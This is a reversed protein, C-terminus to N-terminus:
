MGAVGSMGVMLQEMLWQAHLQQPPHKKLKCEDKHAKWSSKQCEKSCYFVLQCQSCAKMKDLDRGEVKDCDEAECFRYLPGGHPGIKSEVEIDIRNRPDHMTEIYRDVEKNWESMRKHGELKSLIGSWPKPFFDVFDMAFLYAPEMEDARGFMQLASRLMQGKRQQLMDVAARMIDPNAQLEAFIQSTVGLGADFYPQVDPSVEPM